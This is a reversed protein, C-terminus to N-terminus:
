RRGSFSAPRGVTEMSSVNGTLWAEVETFMSSLAYAMAQTEVLPQKETFAHVGRFIRQALIGGGEGRLLLASLGVEAGAAGTELRTLETELVLAAPLRSGPATVAAFLGSRILWARLAAEALDAPPAAWEDYPLSELTGDARLRRLGRSELGPAARMTRLLLTRGSGRRPPLRDPRAAALPYRRIEQYPRDPLVSCGALWLLALLARRPLAGPPDGGGSRPGMGAGSRPPPSM